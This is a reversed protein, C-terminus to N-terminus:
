QMSDDGIIPHVESAFFHSSKTDLVLDGMPERRWVVWLAVTLCVYAIAGDKIAQAPAEALSFAFSDLFKM